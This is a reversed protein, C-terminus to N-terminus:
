NNLLRADWKQEYRKGEESLRLKEEIIDILPILMAKEVGDMLQDPTETMGGEAGVHRIAGRVGDADRDSKARGNPLCRYADGIFPAKTYGAPGRESKGGCHDLAM